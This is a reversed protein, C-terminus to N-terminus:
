KEQTKEPKLSVIERYDRDKWRTIGFFTVTARGSVKANINTQSDLSALDFLLKDRAMKARICSEDDGPIMGGQPTGLWHIYKLIENRNM